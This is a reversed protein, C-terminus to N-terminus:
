NAKYIAIRHTRLLYPINKLGGTGNKDAAIPRKSLTDWNPRGDLTQLGEDSSRARAGGRDYGESPETVSSPGGAWGTSHIVKSNQLPMHCDICSPGVLNFDRKKQENDKQINLAHVSQRHCDMCKSIFLATKNEEAEHPSHCTTCTMSSAKFCLSARLLQLQKGHVDPEGNDAGFEPMYYHSLTDGPTFAFLSKQPSQDNGSHCVGCVDLQQQRTLASIRTIYKATKDDPHEMHFQVHGLAPGHCRECDIGFVISNRDLNESISLPGSQITERSVYSAHCEFCRSTIVREYNAHGAPFGPSNAWANFGAFWTLPLQYLQNEKWSAYTQAKEGSGFAIDFKGSRDKQGNVFHSQFLLYSDEEMRIYSSDGFYYRGKSLALLKKLRSADISSSTRFHDNFAYHSSIDKHCNACVAAGAYQDGRPDNGTFSRNHICQSFLGTLMTLLSIVTLTRLNTM